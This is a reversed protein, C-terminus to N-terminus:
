CDPGKEVHERNRMRRRAELHIRVVHILRDYSRPVSKQTVELEYLASQEKLHGCKRLQKIFLTEMIDGPPTSIMGCITYEWDNM